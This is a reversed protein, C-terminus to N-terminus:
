APDVLQWGGAGSPPEEVGGEEPRGTGRERAGRQQLLEIARDEPAAHRKDPGMLKVPDGCIEVLRSVTRKGLRERLEDLDLNTTAVIPREAEYRANVLSYLQELVWDTRNEAGLDDIHLLDVASLQDLLGVLGGETDLSERLLGLLRPLSYIAVSYGAEIATKSILMALTTKGTGVHGWFWLGRGNEINADIDRVYRKVARLQDPASRALDTLPAREFSVGLYRKPLRGELQASKARAIRGARCGCDSATNTAEDIVFGGGDCIGLPCEGSRGTRAPLIRASIPEAAEDPTRLDLEERLAQRADSM